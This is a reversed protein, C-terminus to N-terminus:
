ARREQVPEHDAAHEDIPLRVGCEDLRRRALALLEDTGRASTAWNTRRLVLDELRRVSEAEVLHRLTPALVDASTTALREADLLLADVGVVPSPEAGAAPVTATRWPFAARLFQEALARATTFKIAAVSFLGRPGGSERHDFVVPRRTLHTSGAKRVPLLGAFVRRVHRGDVACGPWAMRLDALFELVEWEGPVAELTDPDRARHVTGALTMRGNPVLFYLPADPGPAAIAVAADAPPPVDLLVNFALSPRFLNPAPSGQDAAFRRGSSGTCNVIVPASAEFLENTEVDRAVVGHVRGSGVRLREVRAYNAAHAGLRTAAHLLEIVIRESSRMRLDSWTAAGQLHESRVWPLRALTEARDIVTGAPLDIGDTGGFRAALLDNVGLAARLVSRRRLRAGYLPMLCPLPEVLAPFSRALWAREVVSERFRPLDLHQLYRLGGHLIRLSNATAGGGYDRAELLVPHLGRRAAELTVAVGTIGGGIVILDYPTAAIRALNRIIM